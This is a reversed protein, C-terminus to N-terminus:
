RVDVNELEIFYKRQGDTLILQDDCELVTLPSGEKLSLCGRVYHFLDLALDYRVPDNPEVKCLALEMGGKREFLQYLLTGDDAKSTRVIEYRPRM